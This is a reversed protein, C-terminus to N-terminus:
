SVNANDSKIHPLRHSSPQDLTSAAQSLLLLQIAVNSTNEPGTHEMLLQMNVMTIWRMIGIVTTGLRWVDKFGNDTQLRTHIRHQGM